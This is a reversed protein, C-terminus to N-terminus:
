AARCCSCLHSSAKGSQLWVGPGLHQLVARSPSSVNGKMHEQLRQCPRNPFNWPFLSLEKADVPPGCPPALGLTKPTGPCEPPPPSARTPGPPWWCMIQAQSAGASPPDGQARHRCPHCVAEGGVGCSNTYLQNAINGALLPMNFWLSSLDPSPAEQQRACPSPYM